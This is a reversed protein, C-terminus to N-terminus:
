PSAAPGAFGRIEDPTYSGTFYIIDAKFACPDAFLTAINSTTPPPSWRSM